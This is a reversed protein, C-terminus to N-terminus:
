TSQLAPWAHLHGVLLCPQAEENSCGPHLDPNAMIPQSEPCNGGAGQVQKGGDTHHARDNQSLPEQLLISGPDPMYSGPLPVSNNKIIIM